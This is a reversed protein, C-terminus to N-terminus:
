GRRILTVTRRVIVPDGVGPLYRITLRLRRRHSERLRRAEGSTPTITVTLHRPETVAVTRRKIRGAGTIEIAGAGPATVRLRMTGRRRDRSAFKVTVRAALWTQTQKAAISVLRDLDLNFDILHSGIIPTADNLQRSSGVPEYKYVHAGNIRRCSGRYQYAKVWPTPATPPGNPAFTTALGTSILGLPFSKTRLVLSFPAAADGDLVGPDTCAVEYGAGHPEGFVSMVDTNTNGVFAVPAPDGAFSSYAVICGAEGERTCLPIHDFDGGIIKGTPVTVNGGILFGSVLRARLKPDPDIQTRVLQRLIQTGQSHGLLIVGRGDNDNKLYNRWAQLVDGYAEDIPGHPIGAALIATTTVQRYLPVFVRCVRSFRAAEDQAVLSVEPDAAKTANVSKQNSVTPYVYFCDVPRQTEAVRSPTIVRRSGDAGIVTTKLSVNCPDPTIGPHCLWKVDARTSAADARTSSAEARASTPHVALALAAVSVACVLAWRGRSVDVRGRM